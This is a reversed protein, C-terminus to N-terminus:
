DDMEHSARPQLPHQLMRPLHEDVWEKVACNFSRPYAVSMQSWSECMWHVEELGVEHELGSINLERMARLRALASYGSELSIALYRTQAEPEVDLDM